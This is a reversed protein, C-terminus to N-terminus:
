ESPHGRKAAVWEDHQEVCVAPIPRFAAADNLFIWVVRTRSKIEASVRKLPSKSCIRAWQSQPCSTVACLKKKAGSFMDGVVEFQRELQGAFQVFKAASLRSQTLGLDDPHAGLGDPWPAVASQHARQEIYTFGAACGLRATSSRCIAAKLGLHADVIV